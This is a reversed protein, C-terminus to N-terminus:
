HIPKFVTKNKNRVQVGYKVGGQNFCGFGVSNKSTTLSCSPKDFLLETPDPPVAVEALTELTINGATAAGPVEFWYDRETRAKHGFEEILPGPENPRPGNSAADTRHAAIVAPTLPARREGAATTAATESPLRAPAVNVGPGALLGVTAVGALAAQTPGFLLRANVAVTVQPLYTKALDELRRWRLVLGASVAASRDVLRTLARRARLRLMRVPPPVVGNQEGAIDALLADRQSRSIQKLASAVEQMELRALVEHPVDDGAVVEPLESYVDAQSLRRYHDTLLNLAITCAYPGLPRRPDIRTWSAVLRTATEQVIDEAVGSPVGRKALVRFLQASLEPWEQELREV